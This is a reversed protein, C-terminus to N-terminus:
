APSEDDESLPESFDPGWDMTRAVSEWDSNSDRLDIAVAKKYERLAKCIQLAFSSNLELASRQFQDKKASRFKQKRGPFIWHASSPAGLALRVKDEVVLGAWTLTPHNRELRPQCATFLAEMDLHWRARLSPLGGKTCHFFAHEWDEAPDCRLLQRLDGSEQELQAVLAPDRPSLISRAQDLRKELLELRTECGDCRADHEDEDNAASAHDALLSSQTRFQFLALQHKPRSEARLYSACTWLPTRQLDLNAVSVFKLFKPSDFPAQCAAMQTGRLDWVVSKWKRKFQTRARRIPDFLQGHEDQVKVLREHPPPVPLWLSMSKHKQLLQLYQAELGQARTAHSSMLFRHLQASVVYTPLTRLRNVLNGVRLDRITIADPVGLDALVTHPDTASGVLKTVSDLVATQIKAVQADDVLSISSHVHSLVLASWLQFATRVPLGGPCGGMDAVKATEARVHAVTASVHQRLTLWKDLWWGLYRYGQSVRLKTRHGADAATPTSVTYQFSSPECMFEVVETKGPKPNLSLRNIACYEAIRDIMFQLEAPSTALLASDDVFQLLALYVTSIWLGPSARRSGRNHQSAEPGSLGRRSAAGHAPDVFPKEQLFEFMDDVAIIFLIPSLVSGERVGSAIPFFEDQPIGPHMVRSKMNGYLAHINAWL